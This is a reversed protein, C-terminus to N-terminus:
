KLPIYRGSKTSSMGPKSHRVPVYSLSFEGLYMGVMDPKIEVANFVKGNYVGIVNGIMEPVIPMDRLHTNVVDPKDAVDREGTALKEAHEKKVKRLKLLLAICKAGLGRKFRRRIRATVLETLEKKHVKVLDPLEIGRYFFKRFARKEKSALDESM